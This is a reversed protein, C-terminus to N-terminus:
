WTKIKYKSEMEFAHAFTHGLNLIKRLGTIEREDVSVINSKITLCIQITKEVVSIRNNFLKKLNNKLLIYNKEDSLFSYKFVEGAGSLIEKEPLSDSFNQIFLVGEPQYFTGILNKRKIM